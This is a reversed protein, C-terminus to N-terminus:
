NHDNSQFFILKKVQMQNSSKLNLFNPFNLFWPVRWQAVSMKFGFKESRNLTNDTLIIRLFSQHHDLETAIDHKDKEGKLSPAYM